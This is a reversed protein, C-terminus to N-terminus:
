TQETTTDGVTDSDIIMQSRVQWCANRQDWVKEVGPFPGSFHSIAADVIKRHVDASTSRYGSSSSKIASNIWIQYKNYLGQLKIQHKLDQRCSICNKISICSGYRQIHSILEKLDWNNKAASCYNEQMAKSCRPDNLSSAYLEYFIGSYKETEKRWEDLTKSIM